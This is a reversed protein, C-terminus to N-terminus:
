QSHELIYLRQQTQHSRKPYTDIRQWLIRCLNRCHNCSTLLFEWESQSSLLSALIVHLAITKGNKNGKPCKKFRQKGAKKSKQTKAKQKKSKQKERSRQKSTEKSRQKEVKRSRQKMEEESRQKEVIRSRQKKSKQKEAKGQKKAEESRSGLGVRFGV